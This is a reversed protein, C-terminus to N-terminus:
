DLYVFENLNLVVLCFAQLAAEANLGDDRLLAQILGVGRRVDADSPQRSTALYLGLRVQQTM